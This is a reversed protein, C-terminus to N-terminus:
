ILKIAKDSIEYLFDCSNLITPRHSILIITKKGKMKLVSDMFRKETESDLNSTSEDLVLIDTNRYLARAIGIRQQQGGSLKSGGEGLITELGEPLSSLFNELQSDRISLKIQEEDLNQDTFNLSINVKLSADLLFTKQQVYGIKKQWNSLNTQVDEGDVLIKGESPSLLGLLLNVFTSKGTGSEGVLGVLSYKPIKLNINELVNTDTEPYKFTLGKISIEKNFDLYNKSSINEKIHTEKSKDMENALINFSPITYRLQQAATLIRNVSPLMRFIAVALIGLTLAVAEPTRNLLYLLFLVLSGVCFIIGAELFLRPLQSIIFQKKEADIGPSNLQYFEELFEPEKSTMKIDKISGVTHQLHLIRKGDYTQRTNGYSLLRDKTLYRILLFTLALFPAIAAIGLPEIAILVLFIGLLLISEVLIVVLSRLGSTFYGIDNNINRIIDSSNRQLIFAYSSYLYSKYLAESVKKRISFIFRGSKFALFIMFATKLLYFSVLTFLSVFLLNDPSIKLEQFLFSTIEPFESLFEPDLVALIIPIFLGIGVMEFVM